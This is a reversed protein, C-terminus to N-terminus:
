SRVFSHSYRKSWNLSCGNDLRNRWRYVKNLDNSCFRSGNMSLLMRRSWNMNSSVLGMKMM